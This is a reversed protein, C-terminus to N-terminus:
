STALLDDFSPFRAAIGDPLLHPEGGTRDALFRIATYRPRAGADFWHATRAPVSLLDGPTCLVAHVLGGVHLYFCGAGAVVFRVLDEDHRHETRSTVDPVADAPAETMRAVDVSWHGGEARIHAIHHRYAHLIVADEADAPVRRAAHWRALRVGIRLLQGRILDADDTRLRVTEPRDEPMVQLLTM